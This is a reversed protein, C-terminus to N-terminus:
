PEVANQKPRAAAAKKTVAERIPFDDSDVRATKFYAAFKQVIDPHDGAVDHKEASDTKMDFLEIPNKSGRRVAKWDSIRAAQDFGREHFEWYLPPHEVPTGKLLAPLVSIGDIGAPITEGAL